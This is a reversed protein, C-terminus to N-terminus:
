LTKTGGGGCIGEESAVNLEGKLATPRATREHSPKRSPFVFKRFDRCLSATTLGRQNYLQHVFQQGRFSFLSIFTFVEGAFENNSKAAKIRIETDAVASDGFCVVGEPREFGADAGFTDTSFGATVLVITGRNGNAGRKLV